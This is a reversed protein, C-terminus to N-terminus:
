RPPERSDADPNRVQVSMKERDVTCIKDRGQDKEKSSLPRVRVIVRVTESKKSALNAAMRNLDKDKSAM